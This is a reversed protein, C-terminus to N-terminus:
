VRSRGSSPYTLNHDALTIYHDKVPNLQLNSTYLASTKLTKNRYSVVRRM